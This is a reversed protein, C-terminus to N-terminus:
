RPVMVAAAPKAFNTAAPRDAAFRVNGFEASGRAEGEIGDGKWNFFLAKKPVVLGQVEQWEEFLIAHEVAEGARAKAGGDFFTVTYRVLRLRHTGADFYCTYTDDPADGMGTGFSFRVANYEKGSFQRPGLVTAKVGDDALVFPLAFFYFPTWLYFRPSMSGLVKPEPMVWVGDSQSGGLSYRDCQIRGERTVLDFLQHDQLTREGFKWTLDFEVQGFGQWRPLGGHARLGSDFPEEARVSSAACVTLAALLPLIRM